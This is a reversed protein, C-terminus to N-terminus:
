RLNLLSISAVAIFARLGGQAADLRVGALGVIGVGDVEVQLLGALLFLEHLSM